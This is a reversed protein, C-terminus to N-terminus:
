REIVISYLLVSVFDDTNLCISIIQHNGILDVIYYPLIQIKLLVRTLKVIFYIGSYVIRIYLM